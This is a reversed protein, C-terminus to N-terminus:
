ALCNQRVHGDIGLSRNRPFKTRVELRTTQRFKPLKDEKVLDVENKIGTTEKFDSRMLTQQIKVAKRQQAQKIAKPLTLEQDLQLKESLKADIFGILIRDRIMEDRLTGFNCHETLTRSTMIFTNVTEVDQRHQNFKAQGFIVNHRVM